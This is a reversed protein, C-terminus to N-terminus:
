AARGQAYEEIQEYADHTLDLLDDVRKLRYDRREVESMPPQSGFGRMFDILKMEESCNVEVLRGLLRRIELGSDGQAILDFCSLSVSGAVGELAEINASHSKFIALLEDRGSM